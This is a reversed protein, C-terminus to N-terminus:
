EWRSKLSIKVSRAAAGCPRSFGPKHDALEKMEEMNVAEYTHAERHAKARELMDHQITGLLEAVKENIEDLSVTIKEHTDRRM